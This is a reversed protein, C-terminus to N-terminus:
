NLALETFLDLRGAGREIVNQLASAQLGSESLWYEGCAALRRGIDTDASHRTLRVAIWSTAALGALRLFATATGEAERIEGKRTLM